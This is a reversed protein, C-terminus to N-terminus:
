FVVGSYGSEQVMKLKRLPSNDETAEESEDCTERFRRVINRRLASFDLLWNNRIRTWVNTLWLRFRRLVGVESRKKHLPRKTASSWQRRPTQPHNRSPVLPAHSCQTSLLDASITNVLTTPSLVSLRKSDAADIFTSTGPVTLFNSTTPRQSIGTSPDNTFSSLGSIVTSAYQDGKSLRRYDQSEKRFQGMESGEQYFESLEHLGPTIEGLYGKFFNAVGSPDTAFSSSGTTISSWRRRQRELELVVTLTIRDSLTVKLTSSFQDVHSLQFSDPLQRYTPKKAEKVCRPYSKTPRAISITCLTSM